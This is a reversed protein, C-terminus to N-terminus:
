QMDEAGPRPLMPAIYYFAISCIILVIATGIWLQSFGLLTALRTSLVPAIIFAIAYAMGNVGMYAGKNRGGARQATLTAIFPMVLIEGLSLLGMSVFLLLFGPEFGLLFYSLACLLTGAFLSFATTFRKEATHVLLMEFVVVVFGNAGMLLGITMQSLGLSNKYFLPLSSMMQFFCVAFATCIGCFLLFTLDRYPSQEKAAPLVVAKPDRNARYQRLRFLKQRRNFFYIYVLGAALAGVANTYFLFSYSVTAMLGGLAPGLSFGLNVAMRNLSFARTLNRPNAYKAIAVSNAPRFMESVISQALVMIGLALPTSFLPYLCFLPVSILLSSCQVYYEGLKDTLYGGLWSGIVSGIGFCSLVLGSDELSFNLRDAMYVGLFPLVMSGTRNILMVISLMWSELSLDKFSATYIGLLKKM